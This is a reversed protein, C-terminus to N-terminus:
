TDQTFRAVAVTSYKWTHVYVVVGHEGTPGGRVLLSQMACARRLPGELKLYISCQTESGNVSGNPERRPRHHVTALVTVPMRAHVVIRAPTLDTMYCRM